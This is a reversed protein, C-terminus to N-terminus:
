GKKRILVLCSGNRYYRVDDMISKMLVIGRGHELLLSEPDDPDPVDAPKFGEGEDEIRLAWDRDSEYLWTRVKKRDSFKNGHKIANVLAEDLVLRLKMDEEDGKIFGRAALDSLLRSLAVDKDPLQSPIEMEILTRGLPPPPDPSHLFELPM